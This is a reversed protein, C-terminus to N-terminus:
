LNAEFFAKMTECAAQEDTGDFTLEVEQGCKVGLGMVAFLRKADVAKEGKKIKIACEYKQMEKVMMGAPRAHMGEKDTIAYTFSTM